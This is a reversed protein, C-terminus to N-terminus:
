TPLAAVESIHRMPQAAKLRALLVLMLCSLLAPVSAAMFLASNDWKWGIMQGAVVPGVISGARGIGLSWGVGTSRITTPYIVAALANIAPQGGVICVGSVFVVAFLLGFSLSPQGIAFVSCTAIAFVPILVRYFGVRDIIPGMAVTGLVGGLQLVTGVLVATALDYGSSTVLTPLWSSLFFLNLLNMFNIAWLLLTTGTRGAKFLEGVLAGERKVEAVHLVADAGLPVDPAIRGLWRHVHDLRRGHLVLFQMSEPLFRLMLAAIVMPVTGGFLFVSTWGFRPILAASVVGGLMAGATFGCSVWMMLSVRRRKPSYEGALAMANAMIGGLGLGTVFRIAFLEGITSTFPTLLMCVGFFVTSGILVPRRGIRDALPSLSLSGILMGFLSAGFVPGLAAREVQWTRIIAPAVFGMAQADFGDMVVSAGLLILLGVQFRSVGRADILAAIDVQNDVSV